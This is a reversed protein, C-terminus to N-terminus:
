PNLVELRDNVYDIKQQTVTGTTILEKLTSLAFITDAKLTQQVVSIYAILAMPDISQGDDGKVVDPMDEVVFGKRTLSPKDKPNWSRPTVSDFMQWFGKEYTKQINETYSDQNMDAAWALEIYNNYATEMASTDIVTVSGTGTESVITTYSAQNAAIWAAKAGAIYNLKAMDEADLLDPKIKIPKINEKIKETSAVNFATARVAGDFWGSYATTTATIATNTGLGFVTTTANCYIYSANTTVTGPTLIEFVTNGNAPDAYKASYQNCVGVDTEILQMENVTVIQADQGATINLRFARYASISGAAITFNKYEYDTWGTINTQTDLVSWTTTDASGEFTWTKLNYPSTATIDYRKITKTTGTGFDYILWAVAGVPGSSWRNSNGLNRDFALYGSFTADQVASAYAVNPSPTSTGTMLATTNTGIVGSRSSSQVYLQGYAGATPQTTTGYLRLVTPLQTSTASGNLGSILPLQSATASGTVESFAVSASSTGNIWESGTYKLFQGNAPSSIIVDSLANVSLSGVAANVRADTYYKNTSGESINDTNGTTETGLAITQGLATITNNLWGDLIKSTGDSMVIKSAGPTSTGSVPNQVVLSNADLSAIGSASAKSAIFDDIQTHTQTGKNTLNTHSVQTTGDSGTHTHTTISGTATTIQAQLESTANNVSSYEAPSIVLGNAGFSATITGQGALTPNNFTNNTGIGDVADLKSSLAGTTGIQSGAVYIANFGNFNASISGGGYTFDLSPSGAANTGNIVGATGVQTVTQTGIIFRVGNTGYQCWMDGTMRGGGIDLRSPIRYGTQTQAQAIGCFVLILVIGILGYKYKTIM